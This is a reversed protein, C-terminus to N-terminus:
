REHGGPGSREVPPESARVARSLMWRVAFCDVLGRRARDWNGYKSVGAQREAHQVPVEHGRFGYGHFLTPLFRHAGNFMPLTLLAERRMLKLSCGTDAVRHGTVANRFGNGIKSAFRKAYTDRRQVRRGFYIDAEAEARAALLRAIEEPPNQLDADLTVVWDGRAARFGAALAASQGVNRAATLVRVPDHEAELHELLAPSEDRSGDDVFILEWELERAGMTAAVRRWLDPLNPAEDYVPIVVSLDPRRRPADDTAAAQFPSPAAPEAWPMTESM